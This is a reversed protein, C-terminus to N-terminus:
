PTVEIRNSTAAKFFGVQDSVNASTKAPLERYRLLPQVAVLYRRGPVIRYNRSLDVAASKSEGPGLIVDPRSGPLQSVYIGRYAVASGDEQLVRLVNAQLRGDRNVEPIDADPVAIPQDGANVLTITIVATGTSESAAQAHELRIDLRGAASAAFCAGLLAMGVIWRGKM